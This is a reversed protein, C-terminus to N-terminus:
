LVLLCAIPLAPSPGDQAGRWGQCGGGVTHSWRKGSLDVLPAVDAPFLAAGAGAGGGHLAALGEDPDVAAAAVAPPLCAPMSSFPLVALLQAFPQTPAAPRTAAALAGRLAERGHRALDSALPAYHHEYCCAWSACPVCSDQGSGGQGRRGAAEADAADAPVPAPAQPTVPPTGRSYYALTWCLTRCYSACIRRV